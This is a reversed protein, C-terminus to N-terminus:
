SYEQLDISCVTALGFKRGLDGWMGDPYDQRLIHWVPYNYELAIKAVEKFVQRRIFNISAYSDYM